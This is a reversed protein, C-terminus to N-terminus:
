LLAKAETHGYARVLSGARFSARAAKWAPNESEPSREWTFVVRPKGDRHCWAGITDLLVWTGKKRGPKYGRAFGIRVEYGALKARKELTLVSGPWWCWGAAYTEAATIVPPPCVTDDPADWQRGYPTIEPLEAHPDIEPGPLLDDV